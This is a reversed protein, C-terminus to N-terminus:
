TYYIGMYESSKWVGLNSDLTYLSVLVLVHRGDVSELSETRIRQVHEIKEPFNHKMMRM